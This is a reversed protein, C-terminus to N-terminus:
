PRAYRSSKCSLHPITSTSSLMATRPMEGIAALDVGVSDADTTSRCAAVRGQRAERTRLGREGGAAVVEADSVELRQCSVCVLELAAVEVPQDPRIRRRELDVVLPRRNVVDILERSRQDHQLAELVLHDRWDLCGHNDLRQLCLAHGDRVERELALLVAKAALRVDPPREVRLEAKVGLDEAELQRRFLADLGHRDLLRDLSAAPSGTRPAPTGDRATVHGRSAARVAPGRM